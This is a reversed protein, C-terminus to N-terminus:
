RLRMCSISGCSMAEGVLPREVSSQGSCRPDRGAEQSHLVVGDGISARVPFLPIVSKTFSRKVRGALSPPSPIGLGVLTALM